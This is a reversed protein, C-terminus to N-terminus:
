TRSWSSCHAVLLFRYLTLMKLDEVKLLCVKELYTGRILFLLRIGM